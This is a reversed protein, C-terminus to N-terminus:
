AVSFEASIPMVMFISQSGSWRARSKPSFLSVDAFVICRSYITQHRYPILSRMAIIVRIIHM